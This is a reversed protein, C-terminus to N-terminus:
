WESPLLITLVRRTQSPDDQAESGYEYALDYLDIKWFLRVAREEDTVDFAGFDHLGFPDNDFTFESFTRVAPIIQAKAEFSLANVGPTIFIRGPVAPDTGMSTRFRDNQAAIAEAKRAAEAVENTQNM